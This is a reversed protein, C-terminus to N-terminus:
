KLSTAVGCAVEWLVQNISSPKVPQGDGQEVLVANHTGRGMHQSFESSALLRVTKHTCDFEKHTKTSFFRHPSMMFMGFPANGQMMKYDVLQWLTVLDGDRRITTPDYHVLERSPSQYRSDVAIWTEGPPIEGYGQPHHVQYGPTGCSSLTLCLVCLCPGIAIRKPM